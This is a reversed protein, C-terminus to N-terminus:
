SGKKGGPPAAKPMVVRDGEALGQRVTVWEQNGDGLVVPREEVGGQHNLVSVVSQRQVRHVARRPVALAEKVAHLVVVEVGTPTVPVEVGQPVTVEIVVGYTIVGRETRPEAAVSTVLGDFTQSAVAAIVVRALDGPEVLRLDAADL